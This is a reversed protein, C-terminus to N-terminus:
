PAILADVVEAFVADLRARLAVDDEVLYDHAIVVFRLDPLGVSAAVARAAGLFPATVFTVTPVGRQELTVADLV